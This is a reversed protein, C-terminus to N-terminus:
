TQKEEKYNPQHIDELRFYEEEKNKFQLYKNKYVLFHFWKTDM